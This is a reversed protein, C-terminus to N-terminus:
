QTQLANFLEEGHLGNELAAEADSQTFWLRLEDGPAKFTIGVYGLQPGPTDEVPFRAVVALVQEILEGLIEKDELGKVELTVYFDTEMALFNVVDGQSDVCNEGYAEAYGDVQLQIEKLEEGFDNSLDPLPKHAWVYACENTTFDQAPANETVSSTDPELTLRPNLKGPTPFNCASLLFIILLSTKFFTRM